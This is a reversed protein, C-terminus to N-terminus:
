GSVIPKIITQTYYHPLTLLEPFTGSFQIQTSIDPFVSIIKQCVGFFHIVTARALVDWGEIQSTDDEGRFTNTLRSAKCSRWVRPRTGRM